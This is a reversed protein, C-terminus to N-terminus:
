FSFLSVNYCFYNKFSCCLHWDTPRKWTINTGTNSSLPAKDSTLIRRRLEEQMTSLLMWEKLQYLFNCITKMMATATTTELFLLVLISCFLVVLDLGKGQKIWTLWRLVVWMMVHLQIVTWQSQSDYSRIGRFSFSLYPASGEDDLRHSLDYGM